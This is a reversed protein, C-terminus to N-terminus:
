DRAAGEGYLQSCKKAEHAEGNGEAADGLM